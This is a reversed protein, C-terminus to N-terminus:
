HSFTNLWTQQDIFFISLPYNARFSNEFCHRYFECQVNLEFFRCAVSAFEFHCYIITIIPQIRHKTKWPNTWNSFPLHIWFIRLLFPLSDIVVRQTSSFSWNCITLYRKGKRRIIYYIYEVKLNRLTSFGFDTFKVLTWLLHYVTFLTLSIVNM